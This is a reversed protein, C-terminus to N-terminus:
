QFEANGASTSVFKLLMLLVNVIYGLFFCNCEEEIRKYLQGKILVVSDASAVWRCSIDFGFERSFDGSQIPIQVPFRRPTIGCHFGCCFM